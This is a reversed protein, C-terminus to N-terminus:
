YWDHAVNIMAPTPNIHPALEPSAVATPASSDFSSDTTINFLKGRLDQQISHCDYAIANPHLYQDESYSSCISNKSEKPVNSLPGENVFSTLESVESKLQNIDIRNYPNLKLIQCLLNFLADSIPLIRKLVAPDEIFYHFTKDEVRHAKLWPNRICTLNILIVGLSWIDSKDNPFISTDNNSLIREPSMYYSSGICVNPVLNKSSTALGFDCLYLNDNSDLLLNEPKIDGHYVNNEHCYQLASCLQLFVKKILNGNRTFHQQEVISTFLDTQHYDMVIFTVANSELVQHITVINEHDHVRLQMVIEKYHPVKLIQEESLQLISDLDISPLIIRGQYFDFLKKIENQLSDVPYPQSSSKLIAKIAYEQHTIIDVVHLVLGYAGSGVTSFIKFNNIQCNTLM